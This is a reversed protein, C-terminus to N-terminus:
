STTSFRSPPARCSNGSIFLSSTFSTQELLVLRETCPHYALVPTFSSCLALAADIDVFTPFAGLSEDGNVYGPEPTVVSFLFLAALLLLVAKTAEPV